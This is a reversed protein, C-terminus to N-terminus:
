ALDGFGAAKRFRHLFYAFPKCGLRKKLELTQSVNVSPVDGSPSVEPRESM